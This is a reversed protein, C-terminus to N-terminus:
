LFMVVKQPDHVRKGGMEYFSRLTQLYLDYIVALDVHCNVIEGTTVESKGAARALIKEVAHM